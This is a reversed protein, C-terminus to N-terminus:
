LHLFRESSCFKAGHVHAGNINGEVGLVWKGTQWDYGAQVGGLPGAFRTDATAGSAVFDYDGKSREHRRLQVLM